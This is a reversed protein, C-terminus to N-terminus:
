LRFLYSVKTFVARNTRQLRTFPFLTNDIRTGRQYRDDYGLFIVTGANIRYTLLLNNGVSVVQTNHEAIHRLLFRRSLQFTTRTRFIKVDFVESNEIRNVFQSFINNLEVRMRAHPRLSINLSGVTNRGVYPTDSFLIGDGGNFGGYFSLTRGCYFCGFVGYTTKKFDIERFRELDRNVTATLNINNRFQVSTQAQVQEDQLEGEHDYLRFYTFSPGWTTLMSEPWWRYSVNANAQRLDVRPIFGSEARFESDISGYSASYGFNRGQRTFDVEVAPGGLAGEIENSTSSGVAMFSLRHTQGLRFRGDIGGVRNYDQGFERATMIAGLYSESYFDYRARGVVTQATSGFRSDNPDDFYGAAEDDAVFVGLTTDGVKGTLKGGFRPDIITRTNLLAMPTATQFIEQGELFFPRQEPYFLAFRQNTEIQPRDAEIQSFDPNYTFDATLNPTIGYKFGMGLDGDPDRQNYIGTERDLSGFSIGTLEPLIELNRSQSLGELGELIGFQTLQGAIDRSVPSWSQAESRGRIRRTIQFGWLHPEGPQRAPYRLSKFPIAMEAVWGDEVIRGSTEFLANWSDDGRVGFSGSNGGGGSSRQWYNSGLSSTVSASSSQSSRGRTGEANVLSDSQIGFGNVEFQYARQQDLFPDFLVSMQDDGRTEDRDAWNVRMMGTDIYHAYFAFYLNDSDYAMWVETADTGPAGAIPAIQVFDTIHTATEWVPDDLQGDIQPPETTRYIVARPVDRATNVAFGSRGSARTQVPTDVSETQGENRDVDALQSSDIQGVEDGILTVIQDQLQFLDEISGDITRSQQVFGSDVRLLRTTIRIADVVRQYTGRVLWTASVARSAVLASNEATGSPDILTVPLGRQQLGNTLTALIGPGIWDDSSQQSVNVFPAVAVSDTDQALASSPAVVVCILLAVIIM